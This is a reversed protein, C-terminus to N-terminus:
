GDMGPLARVGQVEPWRDDELRVFAGTQPADVMHTADVVVGVHGVDVPSSGFFILDGPQGNPGSPILGADFQAQAVRPPHLGLQIAFAYVLGSCDYGSPDAGGWRYPTGIAGAVGVLLDVRRRNIGPSRALAMTLVELQNRQMPTPALDLGLRCARAVARREARSRASLPVLGIVGAAAAREPALRCDSVLGLRDWLALPVAPHSPLTSGAGLLAVLVLLVFAPVGLLGATLLALGKGM